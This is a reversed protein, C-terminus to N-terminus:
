TCRWRNIIRLYKNERFIWVAKPIKSELMEMLCRSILITNMGPRTFTDVKVGAVALSYKAFIREM